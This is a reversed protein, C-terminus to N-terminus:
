RRTDYITSSGPSTEATIVGYPTPCSTRSSFLGAEAEYHYLVTQRDVTGVFITKRAAGHDTGDHKPCAVTVEIKPM